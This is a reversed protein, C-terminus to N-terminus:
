WSSDVAGVYQCWGQRAATAISRQHQQWKATSSWFLKCTACPMFCVIPSLQSHPELSKSLLKLLWWPFVSALLFGIDHGVKYLRLSEGFWARLGSFSGDGAGTEKKHVWCVVGNGLLFYCSYSFIYAKCSPSCLSCGGEGEQSGRLWYMLRLASREFAKLCLCHSTEGWQIHSSHDSVVIRGGSISQSYKRKQSSLSCCCKLLILTLM